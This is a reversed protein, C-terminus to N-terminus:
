RRFKWDIYQLPWSPFLPKLQGSVVTELLARSFFYEPLYHDQFTRSEVSSNALSSRSLFYSLMSSEVFGRILFRLSRAVLYLPYYLPRRNPLATPLTRITERSTSLISSHAAELEVEDLGKYM